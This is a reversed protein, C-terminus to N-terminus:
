PANLSLFLHRTKAQPFSKCKVESVGKWPFGPLLLLFRRGPSEAFYLKIHLFTGVATSGPTARQGGVVVQLVAASSVVFAGM